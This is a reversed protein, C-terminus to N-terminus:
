PQTMETKGTKINIKGFKMEVDQFLVPNIEKEHYEVKSEINSLANTFSSM